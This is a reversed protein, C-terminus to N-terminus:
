VLNVSGYKHLLVTELPLSGDELMLKRHPGYAPIISYELSSYVHLMYEALAYIKAEKEKLSLKSLNEPLLEETIFKRGFLEEELQFELEFTPVKDPVKLNLAAKAREKPTM